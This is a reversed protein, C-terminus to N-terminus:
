NVNLGITLGFWPKNQYIWINKDRDTLADWGVGLGVTLSNIGVMAAFGRSLVFGNYEDTTRYNTSWPNIPESGIGGFVGGTLALHKLNRQTGTPSKTYSLKFRDTRYGLYVNGNFSSNLQRPFGLASPRYKFAETMADLDFSGRSFSATKGPTIPLALRDSTFLQLSDNEVHVYIHQHAESGQRFNYFRDSFEYKPSNKLSSCGMCGILILIVLIRQM